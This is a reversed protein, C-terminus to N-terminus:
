LHNATACLKKGNEWTHNCLLVGRDVSLSRGNLTHGNQELQSCVRSMHVVYMSYMAAAIGPGTDACVTYVTLVLADSM